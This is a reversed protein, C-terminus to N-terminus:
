KFAIRKQKGSERLKGRSIVRLSVKLAREQSFIIQYLDTSTLVVFMRYIIDFDSTILGNVSSNNSLSKVQLKEKQLQQTTKTLSGFFASVLKFYNAVSIVLGYLMKVKILSNCFYWLLLLLLLVALNNKM